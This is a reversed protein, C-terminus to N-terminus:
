SVLQEGMQIDGSHNGTPDLRYRLANVFAETAITRKRERRWYESWWDRSCEESCLHASFSADLWNTKRGCGVCVAPVAAYFVGEPSTFNDDHLPYKYDYRM